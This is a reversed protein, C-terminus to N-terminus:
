GRAHIGGDQVQDEHRIRRAADAGRVEPRFHLEDGIDGGEEVNPGLLYNLLTPARRSFPQTVRRCDSKIKKQRERPREDGVDGGGLYDLIPRTVKWM